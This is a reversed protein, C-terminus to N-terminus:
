GHRLGGTHDAVPNGEGAPADTATDAAHSLDGCEGGIGAMSAATVAGGTLREIKVALPLSPVKHGNLIDSLYSRSIGIRDAWASRSEGSQTIFEALM